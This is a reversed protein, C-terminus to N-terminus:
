AKPNQKIKKRKQQVSAWKEIELCLSLEYYHWIFYVLSGSKERIALDFTEHLNTSNM